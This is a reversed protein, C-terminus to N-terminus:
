RPFSDLETLAQDLNDAVGQRLLSESVEDGTTALERIGDAHAKVRAQVVELLEATTAPWGYARLFRDLRGPRAAFDTFGETAVVHRAHLPVWSFVAFALDWEPTAPGAFDLRLVRRANGSALRRQLPRHRQPRHDPGPVV